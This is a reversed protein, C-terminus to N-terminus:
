AHKELIKLIADAKAVDNKLKLIKGKTMTQRATKMGGKLRHRDPQLQIAQMGQKPDMAFALGHEITAQLEQGLQPFGARAKIADVQYLVELIAKLIAGAKLSEKEQIAKEKTEAKEQEKKQVMTEKEAAKAKTAATKERAAEKAEKKAARATAKKVNKTAKRRAM